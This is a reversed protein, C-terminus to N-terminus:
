TMRSHTSQLILNRNLVFNRPDRPTGSFEVPMIGIESPLTQIINAWIVLSWIKPSGWKFLSGSFLWLFSRLVSVTRGTIMHSNKAYLVVIKYIDKSQILIFLNFNLRFLDTVLKTYWIRVYHNIIAELFFMHSAGTRCMIPM